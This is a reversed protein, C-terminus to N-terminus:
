TIFLLHHVDPLYELFLHPAPPLELNASETPESVPPDVVLPTSATTPEPVELDHSVEVTRKRIQEIHFRRVHGDTLRVEYSVAGSKTTVIGPVVKLQTGSM